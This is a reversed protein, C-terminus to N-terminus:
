TNTPQKARQDAQAITSGFIALAIGVISAPPTLSGTRIGCDLMLGLGTGACVGAVYQLTPRYFLDRWSGLKM